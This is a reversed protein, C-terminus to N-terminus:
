ARGREVIIRADAVAAGREYSMVPNLDLERVQPIDLMLRAIKLIVGALARRDRPPAGRYGELLRRGKIDLTMELAECPEIPAIRISVDKLLEVLVGGLGFLLVVGFVPDRRAGVIVELGSPLMHQYLVGHFRAEPMAKSLSERIRRYAKLAEDVSELGLIVGGVDSKHIVDPSVVKAVAPLGVREICGRVESESRALCYSPVPIGYAELVAFAEHELLKGGGRELAESIISAAKERADGPVLAGLSEYTEGCPAVGWRCETCRALAYLANAARDPFDYVPIGRNELYDRMKKAYESGITVAVIPKDRHRWAIDAIIDAVREHMTPPQMLALVMLMDVEGSEIVAELAKKFDEPTADGTLDIPNGVAVREPFYRRLVARLGESFRPVELGLEALRDAALVGPGGANTIIGVRRGRPPTLRVLAKAMDFLQIPEDVEIVRAQRFAAKYVAYDGALAATHSAAAAAGASTRGAKIVLLSKGAQVARRSADIFDRGRGPNISELYMIITRIKEEHIFYEIFDVEDVDIKNGFNVAMSIGIGEEAAWDMISALFAGSQSIIAIPGKHPRKMRDKPLFFTDIGSLANYVGICNPGLLRTKSGTIIEKLREQLMRGRPGAEAFGGSVVIVGRAGIDAAEEVVDLVREARIAVVVLDPTEPLSKLNPYSKLGLVKPYKPNVPYIRGKYSAILNEVIARGVSGPRQSAGVVAVSEPYLFVDINKIPHKFLRESSM